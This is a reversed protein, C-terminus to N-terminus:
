SENSVSQSSVRNRREIIDFWNKTEESIPVRKRHIMTYDDLFKLLKGLTADLYQLLHERPLKDLTLKDDYPRRKSFMIRNQEDISLFVSAKHALANRNNHVDDIWRKNDSLLKAYEPNINPAKLFNGMQKRFYNEKLTKNDERYMFYYNISALIDLAGVIFYLFAEFYVRAYAMPAGIRSIDGASAEKERENIVEIEKVAQKCLSCTLNVGVLKDDFSMKYLYGVEQLQAESGSISDRILLGFKNLDTM